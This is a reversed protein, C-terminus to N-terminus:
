KGQDDSVWNSDTNWPDTSSDYLDTNYYHGGVQSADDCSTGTHIHLGGTTSVELGELNYHMVLNGSTADVTVQVNGTIGSDTRRRDSSPYAGIESSLLTAGM